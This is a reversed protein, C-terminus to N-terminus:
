STARAGRARMSTAAGTARAIRKPLWRLALLFLVTTVVEVALQTLALDPASFWAYTLCTVLGAGGLMILAALRHFKSQFAAGLACAGGIVWLLVFDLTAPVRARDGWDFAYGLVTVLAVALTVVVLALIQTQLRTTSTWRTLRRAFTVLVTL